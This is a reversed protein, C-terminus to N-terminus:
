FRFGFCSSPVPCAAQIEQHIAELLAFGAKAARMAVLRRRAKNGNGTPMPPCAEGEDPALTALPRLDSDAPLLSNM